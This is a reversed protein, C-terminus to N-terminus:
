IIKFLKNVKARRWSGQIYEYVHVTGGCGAIFGRSFGAVAGITQTGLNLTSKLEGNDLVHVQGAENGIVLREEGIWCHQTFLQPELKHFAQIYILPSTELNLPLTGLYNLVFRNNSLVKM